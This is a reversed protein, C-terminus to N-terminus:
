EAVTVTSEALDRPDVTVNQHVAHVIVDALIQNELTAIARENFKRLLGRMHPSKRWIILATTCRSTTKKTEFVELRYQKM